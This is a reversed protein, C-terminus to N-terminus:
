QQVLSTDVLTSHLDLHQTSVQRARPVWTRLCARLSRPSRHLLHWALAAKLQVAPWLVVLCIARDM